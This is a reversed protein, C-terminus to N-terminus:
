AWGQNKVFDTILPIVVAKGNYAQIGCYIQYILGLIAVCGFTVAGIVVTIIGVILAQVNHAKLYPRDKKDAMLMIIIPSIPSFVYALLAWLKDDSTIDGTMGSGMQASM